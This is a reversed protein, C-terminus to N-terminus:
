KLLDAYATAVLDSDRIGFRRLIGAAIEEGHEAPQGEELAVEVEMFDGLREVKDLHIRTSGILYVARTKRVVITEGLAAALLLRLGHPASTSVVTYFSQKPGSADERLYHILEGQGEDLIRLKLRGTACQFFVDEQIIIRPPSGALTSATESAAALDHIRAKFEINTPM